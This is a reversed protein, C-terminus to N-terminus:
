HISWSKSLALSLVTRITTPKVVPSFTEGCDIGILQTQGDGVLRAKHREFTGDAHGKHTFIWMSRIVNVDPPRPVLEWTGNKMLANYEDTKALKWNMDRLASVPNRPLPAKSAQTHLNFHRKPKLIGHQSRTVPCSLAPPSSSTPQSSSNPLSVFNPAAQSDM